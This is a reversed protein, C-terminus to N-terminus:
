TRAAKWEARINLFNAALIIAAGVFVMMQFPEAYFLIGIFTAIPLRIFDMPYVIIAPAIQLARTICFHAFLGAFGILIVWPAAVLSPVAIDGDYGACILGLVAQMITLWFMIGTISQTLTLLKTAIGSGTFGIASVAAAIIGASFGLQDPRAVILIGIFGVVAATLRAATLREGLLFPALLAVWLPVSFEFAFLQPLTIVTLAYFWLNQGVFHSTNRALHLPLNKTNIQGLTGAFKCVALVVLIGLISRYTMIEFTDLEIAVERGAVAMSTFSVVAGMMWAAAKFPHSQSM